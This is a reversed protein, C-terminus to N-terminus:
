PAATVTITKTRTNNGEQPEATANNGDAKAIIYYLGATTSAPIVLSASATDSANPLLSPIPRTTLPVASSDLVSNKALYFTTVSAPMTDGGVNKTTDTATITSGAVASSPATLATVTVDPGVRVYGASRANNTENSEAAAGNWDAVAIVYYNGAATLAPIVLQTSGSSSQSPNLGGVGRSGLFTDNSSFSSNDSLYFGIASEPVAGTGQNTTTDTVTIQGGAMAVGPASLSAVILDGGTKLASSARDNNTEATEAVLGNWDARAVIYYTGPETNGPIQLTTSATVIAGAALADVSRSGLFVDGEGVSSNASLYFGTTSPGAAGAGQNKTTDSVTITAGAAATAPASVASVILDPGIRVSSSGRYNNTEATELVANLADAQAIVYYTGATTGAPVTLTTAATETAGADLAVATRSGILVDAGDLTSNTSLYFRTTTSADADGAGQNKSTDSVSITGGAAATAPASISSVILDPGVKMSGTSRTNNTESSEQVAADWDAKALIYYSGTGVDPLHLTTALTDTAGPGLAPVSRSGLFTDAADWTSNASLYFGTKSSPSTGGGQNKTTDSVVIDSQARGTSPGTVSSVVLDPPLDDSVITVTASIPSGLNYGGDALVTVVVTENSEYESDDLPVVSIAATSSGSGITVEGSLAQYDTAAATGEVKYYITLPLSTDGTRAFTFAGSVAGAETAQPTSATVTVQRTPNVTVTVDDTSTEGDNDTVELMFAHVGLSASVTAVATSAVLTSGERWTYSVISGNPDFSATGSLTVSAVGDEDNDTVTQDAGANAVPRTTSYMLADHANLGGHITWSDLRTGGVGAGDASALLAEVVQSNQTVDARSWVLAAAGAVHPSAMSTGTNYAYCGVDGPTTSATCRNMPYTSLISNGPAAIDVWSGFNSFSPRNDDEDFAAVSIVNNLAAPYFLETTGNNGAGAVIVLGANWADQVAEDLSQSYATEGLSMNIVKAGDSIARAIAQEIAFDDCTGDSRCVKYALIRADPAVGVAGEAAGPTGTLNNMAAAITGSVHTGHGHDDMPDSDGFVFDYGGAYNPALDPHTYDIGSDIVAVKVAPSGTTIAWAEPADIDADPTGSYFCLPGLITDFCYFQQGTNHLAWQQTFQSDGPVVPSGSDLRRLFNPEVHLVDPNRQYRAIADLETGETVRVRQVRTREIEGTVNGGAVRHANAKDGAAAGPRFTVLIEGRVFPRGANPQQASSRVNLSVVAILTVAIFITNLRV